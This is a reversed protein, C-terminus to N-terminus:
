NSSIMKQMINFLNSKGGDKESKNRNEETM